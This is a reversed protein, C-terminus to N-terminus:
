PAEPGLVLVVADRLTPALTAEREARAIDDSPTDVSPVLIGRGGLTQAPAIDRFRDGIFVSRAVDLQLDRAAHRHLLTGPKRCECPGSREPEHPCHYSGD